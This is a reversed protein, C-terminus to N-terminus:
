AARPPERQSITMPRARGQTAGAAPLCACGTRCTASRNARQGAKSVFRMLADADRIQVERHSWEAFGIVGERALRMFARSVSEVRLGLHNGIEERTLRLSIRDTRAGRAALTQVWHGLFFAVRADASLTCLSKMSARDRTMEDSMARHVLSALDADRVCALLLDEYRVSWLEGGELAAVDCVHRGEAIGDFGLWQGSFRFALLKEFGDRTTVTLKFVGSRVLHVENLRTDSLYVRAGDRVAHRRVSVCQMLLECLSPPEGRPRGAPRVPAAERLRFDNM